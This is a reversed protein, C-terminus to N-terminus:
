NFQNLFREGEVKGIREEIVEFIVAMTLAQESKISESPLAELIQYSQMLKGTDQKDAFAFMKNYKTNCRIGKVNEM